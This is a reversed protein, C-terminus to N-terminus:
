LVAFYFSYLANKGVRVWAWRKHKLCCNFDPTCEDTVPNHFAVGVVWLAKQILVSLRVIRVAWNPYLQMHLEGNILVRGYDGRKIWGQRDERFFKKM